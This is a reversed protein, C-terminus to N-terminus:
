CFYTWSLDCLWVWNVLWDYLGLMHDLMSRLMNWCDILFFWLCSWSFNFSFFNWMCCKLRPSFDALQSFDLVWIVRFISPTQLERWSWCNQSKSWEIELEYSLTIILILFWFDFILFLEASNWIQHQELEIFISPLSTM